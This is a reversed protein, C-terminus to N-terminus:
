QSAEARKKRFELALQQMKNRKERLLKWDETIPGFLDAVSLITDVAPIVVFNAFDFGKITAFKMRELEYDFEATDINSNYAVARFTPHVGKSFGHLLQDGYDLFTEFTAKDWGTYDMIEEAHKTPLITLIEDSFFRKIYRESNSISALYIILHSCEDIFRKSRGPANLDGISWARLANNAETLCGGQLYYIALKKDQVAPNVAKRFSSHLKFAHTLTEGYLPHYM